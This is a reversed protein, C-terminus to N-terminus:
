LEDEGEESDSAYFDSFLEPILFNRMHKAEKYRGVTVRYESEDSVGNATKNALEAMREELRRVLTDHLWSVGSQM